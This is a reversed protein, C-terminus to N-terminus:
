WALRQPLWLVRACVDRHAVALRDLLRRQGEAPAGVIRRGLDHVL